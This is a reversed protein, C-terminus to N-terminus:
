PEHRRHEDEEPHQEAQPQHVDLDEVVGLEFGLRVLGVEPRLLHGPRAPRDEIAVPQRQDGAHVRELDVDVPLGPFQLRRVLTLRDLRQRPQQPHRLPRDAGHHARASSAVHQQREVHGEPQALRDGGGPQRADLHRRGAQAAVRLAAQGALQQAEHPAVVLAERAHLEVEVRDQGAARPQEDELAVAEAVGDGEARLRARRGLGARVEHQRDVLAQLADGLPVQGLGQGVGARAAARDQHHVGLRAVDQRQRGRRREVHLLQVQGVGAGVQRQDAVAGHGVHVLGARHELHEGHRGREVRADDRRVRREDIRARDHDPRPRDAVEVEGEVAALRHRLHQLARQVGARGPHRRLQARVAEVVVHRGEAEALRRARPQAALRRADELLGAVDEPRLDVQRGVGEALADGHRRQLDHAAVGGDGVAALQQPRADHARDDRLVAHLVERDDAVAAHDALLRRGAQPAHHLRDDVPDARVRRLRRAPRDRALRAGGVDDLVADVQLVLRDGGEGAERRDLVRPDHDQDLEVPRLPLDVAADHGRRDERRQQGVHQRQQAHVGRGVDGLRVQEVRRRLARGTSVPGPPASSAAVVSPNSTASGSSAGSPTPVPHDTRALQGVAQARQEAVAVRGGLGRGEVVDHDVGALHRRPRQEHRQAALLRVPM